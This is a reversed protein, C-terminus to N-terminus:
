LLVRRLVPQLAKAMRLFGVDTAHAGDVTAESDSGYLRSGEVYQLGPVGGAILAQYAAKLEKNSDISRAANGKVLWANQYTINEVLIIPTQPRVARLKKVFSQARETVMPATMNPLCDIVYVSSDIEGLLEAMELDMPGNGSFGLNIVPSDFWRGLIAPHAMGPRSACGGQVISTGYFCIPQQRTMAPAPAMSAKPPIGIEVSDVGNYLPLYLMFHRRKGTLGSLMTVSNDPFLEPRGVAAWRWRKGNKFYLDLGSVGTAPMHPMGLPQFRLKWRASIATANTMFRVCIGASHHSLEWVPERVKAQAKSPLRDYFSATDNWGKGEVTLHSVDYWLTDSAPDKVAFNPDLKKIDQKM